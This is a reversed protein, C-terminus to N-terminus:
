NDDFKEVDRKSNTNISISYWDIRRTMLMLASLVIFLLIAGTLLAFDEMQIIVYLVMYLLSLAGCFIFAEKRGNLIHSLYVGLLIVCSVTAAIYSVVFSIHESLSILLLYFIALALGVLGYQIPHIKINRLVEFMFFATFSLVIFLIGYKIARDTQLYVDVSEFLRVGFNMEQSLECGNKQCWQISEPASTNFENVSWQASFGQASITRDLPLFKGIFEPHPWDSRFDATINRASPNIQLTDMGRLTLSIDFNLQEPDQHQSNFYEMPVLARFGDTFIELGSGPQITLTKQKITIQPQGEIGRPDGISIALYPQELESFGKSSKIKKLADEILTPNFYGQLTIKSQYVPITIGQCSSITSARHSSEIWGM